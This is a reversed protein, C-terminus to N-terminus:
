NDIRFKKKQKAKSDVSLDAAKNEPSGSPMSKPELDALKAASISQFADALAQGVEYDQGAIFWQPRQTVGKHDIDSGLSTKIMRIRPM